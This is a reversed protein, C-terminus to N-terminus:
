NQNDVIKVVRIVEWEDLKGLGLGIILYLLTSRNIGNM